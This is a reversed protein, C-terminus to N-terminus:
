LEKIKKMAEEINPEYLSIKKMAIKLGDDFSNKASAELIQSFSKALAEKDVEAEQIMSIFQNTLHEVFRELVIINRESPSKETPIKSVWKAFNSIAEQKAGEVIQYIRSREEASLSANNNRQDMNSLINAIFEALNLRYPDFDVNMIFDPNAQSEKEWNLFDLRSDKGRYENYKTSLDSNFTSAWFYDIVENVRAVFDKKEHGHFGLCVNQGENQTSYTNPLNVSYLCDKM